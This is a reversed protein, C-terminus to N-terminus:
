NHAGTSILVAILAVLASGGVIMIPTDNDPVVIHRINKSEIVGRFLVTSDNEMRFGRGSINGLSDVQWGPALRYAISDMTQVNVTQDSYNQSEKILIEKSCGIFIVITAIGSMCKLINTVMM